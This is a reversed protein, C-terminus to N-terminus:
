SDAGHPGGGPGLQEPRPGADLHNELTEESVPGGAGDELPVEEEDWGRLGTKMSSVRSFGMRQLTRGALLSRQGSRCIVVLERDADRAAALDPVTDEYGWEAAGELIGRPVNLAGPVHFADFEYPERVDLLLPADPGGLREAVDAPFVEPVEPRCEEVLEEYSRSEKTM